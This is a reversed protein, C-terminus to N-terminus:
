DGAPGQGWAAVAVGAPEAAPEAGFWRALAQDSVRRRSMIDRRRALARRLGLTLYWFAPLSRPEKLCCGGVVLLDRLLMQRWYRLFLGTSCNKVRMLFRNKVSHMNLLAPNPTRPGPRLTRVHHAVAEPTYLCRWGLWQARFAVDADERYAFFDPDFFEGDPALDDIMERRYLAAAASAGFVYEGRGYRGDDPEGWGRDFHRMQPTFYIGTSDIRPEPLAKFGPAIALLKGCVTGVSSDAVGAALLNRVFGPEVLVDPNLALVWSGASAQIARNQGAAFGENVANKLVRIRQRFGKLIKITDDSSANDVVVVDLAAARDALLRELCRGIYRGSNFTVITVSVKDTM